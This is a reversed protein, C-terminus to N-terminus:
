RSENRISENKKRRKNEPKTITLSCREGTVTERLFELVEERTVEQYVQPFRFYDYDSFYYACVRFITSNFSDLERVRRGLTSRKMRMFDAEDIGEELIRPVEALIADRVKEPSASDGYATLMAMGEVTEFGGGFTNDIIGEDEYLRQYLRSSEGFLVEAALEGVTERRVAAEGKEPCESKFGLHFATSSTEAYITVEKELPHPTEPWTDVRTVRNDDREPLTELAIQKVQEPDVDGIVCLLMNGPRYFAKHCTYLQEPTIQAITERTGAISTNIPHNKYMAQMLREFRQSEQDDAYMDIEQGIIGQEKDVSEQTFYPTSVFELLLKLSQPFNETCSFYYATMDYGTFANPNAGLAAFETSVDRGPLDFMKHELFHAIGAPTTYAQGNLTFETHIAGFDTVFYALKKTFGPRPILIIQLGNPLTERYLTESLGPYNCKEM